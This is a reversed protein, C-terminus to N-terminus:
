RAVAPNGESRLEDYTQKRTTGRERFTRDLKEDFLGLSTLQSTPIILEQAKFTQESEADVAYDTTFTVQLTDKDRFGSRWPLIVVYRAPDDLDETYDTLIGVYVKNSALTAFILQGKLQRCRYLFLDVDYDSPPFTNAFLGLLRDWVRRGLCLAVAAILWGPFLALAFTLSFRFDFPLFSDRTEQVWKEASAPLTLYGLGVLLRAIFFCLVGAAATQFFWEYGQKSRHPNVHRYVLVALYGPILWVVLEPTNM